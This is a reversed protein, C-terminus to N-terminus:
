IGFVKLWSKKAKIEEEQEKETCIFTILKSKKKDLDKHYFHINFKFFGPIPNTEIKTVSEISLYSYRSIKKHRNITQSQDTRLTIIGEKTLM